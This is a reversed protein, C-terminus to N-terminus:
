VAHERKFKGLSAALADAAQVMLALLAQSDHSNATPLMAAAERLSACKSNVDHILKSLAEDRNGSM